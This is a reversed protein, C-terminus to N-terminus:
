KAMTICLLRLKCALFLESRVSMVLLRRFLSPVPFPPVMDLSSLPLTDGGPGSCGPVAPEWSGADM